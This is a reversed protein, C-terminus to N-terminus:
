MELENWEEYLAHIRMEVTVKEAYVAQAAAADTAVADSMLREELSKLVAEGEGIEKELRAIRAARKREGSGTEKRRLYDSKSSSVSDNSAELVAADQRKELYYEYGGDYTVAGDASLEIIKDATSSIFYRDHSVYLITGTYGRVTEELIERSFIDLHNTPEDMLLFNSHGLMLRCLSVRGKEGGSLTGVKKFVDDGCFMFAALATRVETQTMGPYSDYVEDYVTKEASSFAQEQDYYGIRVGAGLRILGKGKVRGLLMNLLTTKGVGNPGILAVVEGRYIDMGVGSFLPENYAMSLNEAHLVDQGSHKRPELMIRITHQDKPLQLREVKALMKERTKARKISWEQSYSRFRRIIEEQRKIERQQNVYRRIQLNRDVDKQYAYSSYNGNYVKGVGYEIEVIKKALGDIFYRDHSILLVAGKFTKLLYEELWAVAAMDLHNTPEDLMLLDPERLLLKGLAVRTKQGGSLKHLPLKIEEETFGLGKVVGKVLSKYTYGRNKEFEATLKEYKQLLGSVASSDAASMETELRRITEELAIVDAFVSMLEDHANNGTGFDPAQSLFGITAGKKFSIDGDDPLIEGTLIRFLTTKGAGNVGVVAARENAEIGFSVQRLVEQAGFGKVIDKCQLIM